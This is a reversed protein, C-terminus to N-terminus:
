LKCPNRYLLHCHHSQLKPVSIQPMLTHFAKYHRNGDEHQMPLSIGAVNIITEFQLIESVTNLAVAFKSPVKFFANTNQPGNALQVFDCHSAEQISLKCSECSHVEMVLIYNVVSLWTYWDAEDRDIAYMVSKIDLCSFM